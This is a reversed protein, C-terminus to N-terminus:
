ALRPPLDDAPPNTTDPPGGIPPVYASSHNDRSAIFGSVVGAGAGLLLGAVVTGAANLNSLTSNTGPVVYDPALNSLKVLILGGIGSLYGIAQKVVAKWDRATIFAGLDTVQKALATRFVPLVFEM